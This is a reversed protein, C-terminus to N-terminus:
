ARRKSKFTELGISAYSESIINKISDLIEDLSLDPLGSLLVIGSLDISQLKPCWHAYAIYLDGQNGLIEVDNFTEALNFTTPMKIEIVDADIYYQTDLEPIKTLRINDPISITLEDNLEYKM